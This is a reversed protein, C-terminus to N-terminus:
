KVEAKEVIKARFDDIVKMFEDWNPPYGRVRIFEDIPPPYGITGDSYLMYKDLSNIDLHWDGRLNKDLYYYFKKWKNVNCKNLANIFDLWDDIDLESFLIGRHLEGKYDTYAIHVGKATRHARIDFNSTRFDVKSISLEFDSIPVGFKKEYEEKLKDELVKTDAAVDAATRKKIGELMSDMVETIRPMDLSYETFEKPSSFLIKLSRGNSLGRKDHLYLVVDSKITDKWVSARVRNCKHLANVFDLWEGMDIKLEYEQEYGPYINYKATAGTATRTISMVLPYYFERANHYYYKVNTISLEFDSIPADFRKKYEKKLKAELVKPNDETLEQKEECSLFLLAFLIIAAIIATKNM